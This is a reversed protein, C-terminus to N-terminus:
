LENFKATPVFMVDYTGDSLEIYDFKELYGSNKLKELRILEAHNVNMNHDGESVKKKMYSILELKLQGKTTQYVEIIGHTTLIQIKVCFFLALM